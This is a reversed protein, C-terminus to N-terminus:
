GPSRPPAKTPLGLHALIKAIDAPYEITAILTVLGGCHSCVTMDIEFIRKLLQGWSLRAPRSASSVDGSALPGNPETPVIQARLTANPALVGHFRILHLRPRPVLAALRQLFELPTMVVHTTGDRYPTKLQLVVQGTPTRRLRKHGLAPRTIYRCLRELTPRQHSGFQM